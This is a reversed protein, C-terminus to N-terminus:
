RSCPVGRLVAPRPALPNGNEGLVGNMGRKMGGQLGRPQGPDRGAHSEWGGQAAEQLIQQQTSLPLHQQRMFIILQSLVAARAMAHVGQKGGAASSPRGEQMVEGQGHERHERSGMRAPSRGVDVTSDRMRRGARATTAAMLRRRVQDLARGIIWVVNSGSLICDGTFLM